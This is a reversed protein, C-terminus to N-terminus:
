ILIGITEPSKDGKQLNCKACAVALNSPKHAGGKSLPVIHDVHRQGNPIVKGCLYCRVHFGEHAKRYIEKIEALQAATAGILAGAKLARRRASYANVKDPHTKTWAATRSKAVERHSVSYAAQYAAIEKRHTLRWAACRAATEKKHMARYSARQSAIQDKHSRDYIASYITKMGPKLHYMISVHSVGLKAGIASYTMHNNRMIRANMIQSDTLM